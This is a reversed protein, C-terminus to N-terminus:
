CKAEDTMAIALTMKPPKFSIYMCINVYMHVVKCNNFRRRIRDQHVPSGVTPRRHTNM